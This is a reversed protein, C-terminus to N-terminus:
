YGLIEDILVIEYCEVGKPKAMTVTQVCCIREESRCDHCCGDIACPTKKDLRKANRPAATERVRDCAAQLNDALKNRGVVVIVERAGWIMGCVRNGSGVINVVEGTQSLANTSTLYIDHQAQPADGKWHWRVRAAQLREYVGMQELTMSGGISVEHGHVRTNLYTM